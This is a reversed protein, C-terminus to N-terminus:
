FPRFGTRLFEKIEEETKCEDYDGTLLGKNHYIIGKEENRALANLLTAEDNERVFSAFARIRMKDLM